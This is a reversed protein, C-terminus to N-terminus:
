AGAGASPPTAPPYSGNQRLAADDARTCMPQDNRMFPRPRQYRAKAASTSSSADRMSRELLRLLHPTHAQDIQIGLACSFHTAAAPFSLAADQTALKWRPTDRLALMSTAVAQDNAFAANGDQPPPPVLRLSDPLQEKELYGRADTAIVSGTSAAKERASVVGSGVVLAAIAIGTLTRPYSRAIRHSM